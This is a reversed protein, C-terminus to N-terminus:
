NTILKKIERLDKKDVIHTAHPKLIDKACFAVSRGAHKFMSIDNAGDGVSLTEESSIQLMAQLKQIMIGKSDDFMMSGGVRGTLVGDKQHLINAFATHLGLKKVAPSTAIEFGGSFCVCIYGKRKLYEILEFAGEIFPLNECIELARKLSLGKLLKVRMQLSEFFDIKGEMADKTIKHVESDIGLERALFGITEGDMLTADFDFVALKKM